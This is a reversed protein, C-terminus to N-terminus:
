LWQGRKRARRYDIKRKSTLHWQGCGEVDCKYPRLRTINTSRKVVIAAEARSAFPVKRCTMPDIKSVSIV